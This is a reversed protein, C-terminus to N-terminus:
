DIFEFEIDGIVVTDGDKAGKDRLAKIVGKIRLFKQMYNISDLDDVVVNRALTKVINGMVIFAGDTDIEISFSDYKEINKLAKFFTEQAIEEAISENRCM